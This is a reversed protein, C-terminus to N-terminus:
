YKKTTENKGNLSYLISNGSKKSKIIGVEDLACLYGSIFMKNIKLKEAVESVSAPSIERLTEIIQSKNININTM